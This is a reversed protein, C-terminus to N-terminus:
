KEKTNFLENYMYHLYYGDTSPIPSDRYLSVSHSPYELDFGDDKKLLTIKGLSAEVSHVGGRTMRILASWQSDNM